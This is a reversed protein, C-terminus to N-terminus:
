GEVATVLRYGIGPETLLLKPRSPVSEIKVHGGHAEVFGKVISFGLDIGGAM